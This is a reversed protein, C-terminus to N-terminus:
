RRRRKWVEPNLLNRPRRGDMVELACGVATTNGVKWAEVTAGGIHPSAVVNDLKLLPNQASAPETAWVDLGAGGLRGSELAALLAAEDVLPGRAANILLSGPRMLDLERSGILGRSAASLPLHLSVIDSARLLDKLSRAPKVGRKRADAGSVKPDFGIVEMRFARAIEAVRSGIRGLGVLGLTRGALEVGLMRSAETWGTGRFNRDALCLKRAVALMLAFTLEATAETPSEPTNTVCVGCETAAPVDINDFGIGSRAVIRLDPAREFLAKNWKVRAASVAGCATEIGALQDPDQTSAPGFLQAKGKLMARAEAVLPLDTWIRPTPM